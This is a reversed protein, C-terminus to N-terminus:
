QSSHLTLPQPVPQHVTVYSSPCGSPRLTLQEEFSLFFMLLLVKSLSRSVRGNRALNKRKAFGTESDSYNGDGFSIRQGHQMGRLVPDDSFSYHRGHRLDTWEKIKGVYNVDPDYASGSSCLRVLASSRVTRAASLNGYSTGTPIQM